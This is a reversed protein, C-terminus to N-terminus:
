EGEGDVRELPVADPVTPEPSLAARLKRAETIAGDEAQEDHWKTAEALLVGQGYEDPKSQQWQWDIGYERPETQGNGYSYARASYLYEGVEALRVAEEFDERMKPGGPAPKAAEDLVARIGRKFVEQEETGCDEWRGADNMADTLVGLMVIACREILEPDHSM